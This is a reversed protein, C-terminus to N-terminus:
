IINFEEPETAGPHNGQSRGQALASSSDMRTPPLFEEGREWMERIDPVVEIIDPTTIAVLLCKKYHTHAEVHEHGDRSALYQVLEQYETLSIVIVAPLFGRNELGEIQDDITSLLKRSM